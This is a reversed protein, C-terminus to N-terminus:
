VLQSLHSPSVRSHVNDSFDRLDEFSLLGERVYKNINPYDTVQGRPVRIQFAKFYLLSAAMRELFPAFQIDVTSITDGLFYPGGNRALTKDVVALTEVFEGKWQSNGTLWSLWVSFLKRELRLLEHVEDICDQPLLSQKDPFLEELAYIIDNSQRYVKDDIKAVPIQGSPQMILFSIPKDGYCSMNVKEVAYDIGKEELSMWVKHCYPCWSASDRFFTVRPKKNDSSFRRIHNLPSPTTGAKIESRFSREEPTQQQELEQRIQKWSPIKLQNLAQDVKDHNDHRNRFM